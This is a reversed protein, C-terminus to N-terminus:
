VQPDRDVTGLAALLAPALHNREAASAGGGAQDGGILAPERSGSGCRAPHELYHITIGTEPHLERNLRQSVDDLDAGGAPSSGVWGRAM